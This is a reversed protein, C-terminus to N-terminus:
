VVISQANEIYNLWQDTSDKKKVNIILTSCICGKSKTGRLENVKRGYKEISGRNARIERGLYTEILSRHYTVLSHDYLSWIEEWALELQGGDRGKRDRCDM